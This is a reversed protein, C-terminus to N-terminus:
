WRAPAGLSSTWVLSRTVPLAWPRRAVGPRWAVWPRPGLGPRQWPAPPCPPLPGAGLVFQLPHPRLALPPPPAAWGPRRRAHPPPHHRQGAGPRSRPPPPRRPHRPPPPARGGTPQRMGWTQVAWSLWPALPLLTEVAAVAAAVAGVEAGVAAAVPQWGLVAPLRQHTPGQAQAWQRVFASPPHSVARDRPLHRPVVVQVQVVVQPSPLVPAPAQARM